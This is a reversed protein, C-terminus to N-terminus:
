DFFTVADETGKKINSKRASVASRKKVSVVGDGIKNASVVGDAISMCGRSVNGKDRGIIGNVMNASAKPGECGRLVDAYTRRGPAEPILDKGTRGVAESHKEANEANEMLTGTRMLTQTEDDDRGVGVVSHSLRYANQHHKKKTMPLGAREATKDPVPLM